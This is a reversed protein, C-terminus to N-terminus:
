KQGSKVTTTTRKRKRPSQKAANLCDCQWPESQREPTADESGWAGANSVAEYLEQISWKSRADGNGLYRRALMMTATGDLLKVCGASVFDGFENDGKAVVLFDDHCSPDTPVLLHKVAVMHVADKHRMKDEGEGLDWGSGGTMEYVYLDEQQRPECCSVHFQMESEAFAENSPTTASSAAPCEQCGVWSGEWLITSKQLILSGKWVFLTDRWTGTM